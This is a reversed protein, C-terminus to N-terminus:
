LGELLEVVMFGKELDIKKIVDEIAPLLIEREGGTCVYVDNSGTNFINEIEGLKRGDETFVELGTIDRWYYEGESLKELKDFPIFVQCGILARATDIDEVGEIELSFFPIFVQCGILARATDIDEVGEIELSFTKKKFAIKRIKYLDPSRDGHKVYVDQLSELVHPSELYSVVKIRGKLGIPKTIKGIELLDKL